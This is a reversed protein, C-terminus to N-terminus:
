QPLLETSYMFLCSINDLYSYFLHSTYHFNLLARHGRFDSNLCMTLDQKCYPYIRQYSCQLQLTKSGMHTYLKIKLIGLLKATLQFFHCQATYRAASSAAWTHHRLLLQSRAGEALGQCLISCSCSPTLQPTCGWTPVNKYPSSDTRAKTPSGDGFCRFRRATKSGSVTATSGQPLLINDGKPLSYFLCLSIDFRTKITIKTDADTSVDRLTPELGGTPMTQVGDATVSKTWLPVTHSAWSHPM